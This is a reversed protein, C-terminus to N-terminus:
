HSVPIRQYEAKGRAGQWSFNLTYPKEEGALVKLRTPQAQSLAAPKGGIGTKHSIVSKAEARISVLTEFSIHARSTGGGPTEKDKMFITLIEVCKLMQDPQNMVELLLKPGEDIFRITM